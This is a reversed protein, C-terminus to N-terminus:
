VIYICEELHKKIKSKLETLDASKLVYDDAAWDSCWDQHRCYCSNVIVPISNDRGFLRSLLEIGDLGPMRIDLVVLDYEKEELRRLADEGRDATDVAYGDAQLESKYLLLLNKEDDVVLLRKM